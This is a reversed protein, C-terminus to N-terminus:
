IVKIFRRTLETTQATNLKTHLPKYLRRAAQIVMLTDYDPATVTIEKLAAQIENLLSACAERKLAGGSQYGQILEPRISIPQGFEIVARSRFKHPHFYSLGCPVIKLNLNPHLAM